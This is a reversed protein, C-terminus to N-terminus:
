SGSISLRCVTTGQEDAVHVWWDHMPWVVRDQHDRLMEGAEALAMSRADQPGALDVETTDPAPNSNQVTFIYRPM